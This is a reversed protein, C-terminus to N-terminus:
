ALRSGPRTVSPKAASKVSVSLKEMGDFVDPDKWLTMIRMKVM